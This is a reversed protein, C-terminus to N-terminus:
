SFIDSTDIEPEPDPQTNIMDCADEVTDADGNKIIEIIKGVRIATRYENPVLSEYQHMEQINSQQLNIM